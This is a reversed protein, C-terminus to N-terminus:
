ISRKASHYSASTSTRLNRSHPSWTSCHVAGAIWGGSWCSMSRAGGRLTTLQQRQERAKAGSGVEKVQMTVTWGRNAAYDRMARMQMPLTQQDLTSVRAYLGARLMKAPKRAHGFVQKTKAKGSTRKIAMKRTILKSPRLSYNGAM